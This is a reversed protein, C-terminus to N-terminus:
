LINLRGGKDQQQDNQDLIVVEDTQICKAETKMTSYYSSANEQLKMNPQMETIFMSPLKRDVDCSQIPSMMPKIEQPLLVSKLNQNPKSQLSQGIAKYGQSKDPTGKNVKHIYFEAKPSTKNENM